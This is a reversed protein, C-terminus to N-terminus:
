SITKCGMESHSQTEAPHQAIKLCVSSLGGAKFRVARPTGGAVYGTWPPVGTRAQPNPPCDQPVMGTALVSTSGMGGLLSMPGSVRGRPLSMPGSLTTFGPFSMPGSVTDGPFSMPGSLMTGRPFYRSGSDSFPVPFRVAGNKPHPHLCTQKDSMLWPDDSRLELKIKQCM